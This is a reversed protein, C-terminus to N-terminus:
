GGNTCDIDCDAPEPMEKCGENERDLAPRFQGSRYLAPM